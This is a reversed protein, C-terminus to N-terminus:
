QPYKDSLKAQPTCEFQFKTFFEITLSTGVIMDYICRNISLLFAYNSEIVCFCCSGVASANCKRGDVNDNGNIFCIPFVNFHRFSLWKELANEKTRGFIM